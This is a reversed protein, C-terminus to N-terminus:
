SCKPHKHGVEVAGVWVSMHFSDTDLEGGAPTEFECCFYLFYDGAGPTLTMSDLLTTTTQDLTDTANASVRSIAM